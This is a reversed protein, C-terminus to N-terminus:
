LDSMQVAKERFLSGIDSMNTSIQICKEHHKWIHDHFELNNNTKFMKFNTVQRRSVGTAHFTNICTISIIQLIALHLLTENMSKIIVKKICFGPHRM